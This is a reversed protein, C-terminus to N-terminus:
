NLDKLKITKDAIAEKTENTTMGLFQNRYKATTASYDWKSKDLYTKGKVKAAIVTEYSQFFVDGGITIIFQCPVNNGQNSKM